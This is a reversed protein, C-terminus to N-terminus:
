QEKPKGFFFDHLQRKREEENAEKAEKWTPPPTLDFKVFGERVKDWVAGATAEVIAGGVNAVAASISVKGAMWGAGELVMGAVDGEKAAKVVKVGSIVDGAPEIVLGVGETAVTKGVVLIDFAAPQNRAEQEREKYMENSMTTRADGTPLPVVPERIVTRQREESTIGAGPGTQRMQLKTLFDSGEDGYGKNFRAETETRSPLRVAPPAGHIDGVGVIRQSAQSAELQAQQREQTEKLWDPLDSTPHTTFFAEGQAANNPNPIVGGGTTGGPQVDDSGSCPGIPVDVCCTAKTQPHTQCKPLAAIQSVLSSRLSECESITPFPGVPPLTPIPPVIWGDSASCRGSLSVQATFYWGAFVPSASLGVLVVLFLLIRTRSKM